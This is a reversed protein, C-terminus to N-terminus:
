HNTWMTHFLLPMPMTGFRTSQDKTYVETVEQGDVSRVNRSRRFGEEVIGDCKWWSRCSAGIGSSGHLTMLPTYLSPMEWHAQHVEHPRVHKIPQQSHYNCHAHTQSQIQSLVSQTTSVGYWDCLVCILILKMAVEKPFRSHPKIHQGVLVCRIM